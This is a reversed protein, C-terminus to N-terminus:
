KKSDSKKPAPADDQVAAEVKADQGQTPASDDERAAKLGEEYERLTMSAHNTTEIVKDKDDLKSPDYDKLSAVSAERGLEALEEDTPQENKAM